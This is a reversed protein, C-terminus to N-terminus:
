AIPMEASIVNAVEIVPLDRVPEGVPSGGLHGADALVDASIVGHAKGPRKKASIVNAVELVPLDRVPEGVPSGGLHRRSSQERRKAGTTHRLSRSSAVPLRGAIRGRGDIIGVVRGTQVRILPRGAIAM